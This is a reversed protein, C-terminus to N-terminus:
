RIALVGFLALSLPCLLTQFCEVRIIPVLFAWLANGMKGLAGLNVQLAGDYRRLFTM